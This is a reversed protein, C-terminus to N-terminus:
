YREPYFETDGVDVFQVVESDNNISYEQQNLPSM